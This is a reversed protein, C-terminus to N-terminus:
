TPRQPQAGRPLTLMIRNGAGEGRAEAWIQGGHAQVVLRCFHLEWRSCGGGQVPHIRDAEFGPEFFGEREEPPITPGSDAISVVIQEGQASATVTVQGQRPSRGAAIDLLHLLVREILEADVLAPPLDAPVAPHLLVHRTGRSSVAAEVASEVLRRLDAAAPKLVIEGGELRAVDHLAEVFRQLIDCSSVAIDLLEQNSSLTEQPLVIQLLQVTAYLPSILNRLDQVILGINEERLRQLEVLQMRERHLESVQQVLQEGTASETALARDAERLRSSLMEMIKLGVSPETSLLAHFRQRSVRLLRTNELAVVSASRPKEELLAMEGFLEGPGGCALVTPSTFDGKVIAVRGSRVVYMADGQAGERFVIEGPGYSREALLRDLLGRDISALQRLLPADGGGAPTEPSSSLAAVLRDLESFTLKQAPM